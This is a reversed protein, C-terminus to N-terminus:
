SIKHKRGNLLYWLSGFFPVFLVLLVFATKLNNNFKNTSVDYLCFVWLGLIAINLLQWFFFGLQFGSNILSM